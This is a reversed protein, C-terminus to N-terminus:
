KSKQLRRRLFLGVAAVGLSLTFPEPVAQGAFVQGSLREEFRGWGDYRGAWLAWDGEYFTGLNGPSIWRAGHDIPGEGYITAVFAGTDINYYDARLGSIWNGQADQCRMEALPMVGWSTTETRSELQLCNSGYRNNYILQVDQWGTLDLMDTINNGTHYDSDYNARLTGAVYLQVNGDVGLVFQVSADAVNTAAGVVLMAAALACNRAAYRSRWIGIDM